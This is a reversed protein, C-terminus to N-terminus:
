RGQRAFLAIASRTEVSLGDWAEVIERLSEDDRVVLGLRIADSEQATQMAPIAM